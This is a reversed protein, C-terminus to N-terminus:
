KGHSKGKSNNAFPRFGRQGDVYYVVNITSPRRSSGSYSPSIKVYVSKGQRMDGVWQGELTRYAGRNFSADQAFHNFADTPGNFRRAIYHGGDDTPLRDSGGAGAQARRSRSQSANLTLTGTVQRTRDTADLQYTYGNRSVSHWSADPAGTAIAMAAANKGITRAPAQGPKKPPPGVWSGSAGGGDFGDHAGGPGTFGGGGWGQSGDGRTQGGNKFTFRGLLDHWPNFKTEVGAPPSAPFRGTRLYAGVAGRSAMGRSSSLIIRM